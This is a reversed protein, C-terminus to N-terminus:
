SEKHLNNEITKIEKETLETFEIVEDLPKNKLLMKKAMEIKGEKKGKKEGKKYEEEFARDIGYVMNSVEGQEFNRMLDDKESEDARNLLIYRIWSVMDLRDSKSMSQFEKVAINLSKEISERNAKKDLMFVIDLLKTTSLITEDTMRNLDFLLYKFDIIYEGFQEYGQLYEKFSRVVTWKDVGNYLIIPVVAPLRYAISERKNKPTNDFERKMLEVMYRLLRFPM